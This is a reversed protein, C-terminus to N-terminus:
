DYSPVVAASYQRSLTPVYSQCCWSASRLNHAVSKGLRVVTFGSLTRLKAPNEGAARSVLCAWQTNRLDIVVQCANLESCRQSQTPEFCRRERSGFRSINHTHSEAVLALTASGCNGEGLQAAVVLSVVSVACHTGQRTTQKHQCKRTVGFRSLQIKM